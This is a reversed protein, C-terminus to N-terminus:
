QWSGSLGRELQVCVHLPGDFFGGSVQGLENSSHVKVHQFKLVKAFVEKPPVAEHSVTHALHGDLERIRAQV